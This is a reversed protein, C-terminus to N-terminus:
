IWRIFIKLIQPNIYAECWIGLIWIFIFVITKLRNWQKKRNNYLHLIVMLYAFLYFLMQPFLIGICIGIGKIGQFLIASVIMRGLFFGYCLSLFLIVSKRWKFNWLFLILVLFLTRIKVIYFLYEKKEGYEQVFLKLSETQFLTMSGIINEYLIGVFFGVVLLIMLLQNRSKNAIM